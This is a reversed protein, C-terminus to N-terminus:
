REAERDLNVLHIGSTSGDSLDASMFGIVAESGATLIRGGSDALMYDVAHGGTFATDGGRSFTKKETIVDGGDSAIKLWLLHTIGKRRVADRLVAQALASLGGSDGPRAATETFKAFATLVVDAEAVLKQWKDREAQLAKLDNMNSQSQAAPEHMQEKEIKAKLAAMRKDLEALKLANIAAKCEELRLTDRWLVVYRSMLDAPPPGGQAPLSPAALLDLGEVHAAAAKIDAAVLAALSEWGLGFKKGKVELNTKFYGVIDGAAGVLPPLAALAAGALSIPSGGGAAALGVGITSLVSSIAGGVAELGRDPGLLIDGTTGTAPGAGQAPGLATECAKIHAAVLRQFVEIQLSVQAWVIDSAAANLDRVLLVVAAPRSDGPAAVHTTDSRASAALAADVQGAIVGASRELMRRAVLEALYGFKDDGQVTGELPKTQPEPMLTRLTTQQAEAATKQAEADTKRTEAQLRAIEAQIEAPSKPPSKDDTM